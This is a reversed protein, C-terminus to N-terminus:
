SIIANLVALVEDVVEDPVTEVRFAKRAKLDIMRIGNALVVGQTSAGAGTLTITFGKTRAYDGGQTIPAILTMGFKNFKRKSLVICPRQEGQLENGESPNLRVKVIDGRDFIARSM